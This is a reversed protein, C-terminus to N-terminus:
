PKEKMARIDRALDVAVISGQDDADIGGLDNRMVAGDCCEAARELADNEADRIVGALLMLESESVVRVIKEAREEPTM